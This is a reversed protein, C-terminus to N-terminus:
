RESQNFVAMMKAAEAMVRHWYYEAASKRHGTPGGNWRRAWVEPDYRRLQKRDWLNQWCTFVQISREVSLRDELTFETRGLYSNCDEIICPRIGLYGVANEPYNYAKPDGGSEVM